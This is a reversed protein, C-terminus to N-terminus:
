FLPLLMFFSPFGVAAILFAAAMLICLILHRKTMPRCTLILNCFLVLATAYTAVTRIWEVSHGFAQGFLMVGLLVVVATIGAPLARKLVTRLFRGKVREHNPELALCFSPFGIFVGSLLTLNIPAFPYSLPLFVLLLSLLASFCTKVLFLSASRGINNIVRRGQALVAPLATFDSDLLVFQAAHRTADAGSAMAISCDADKMALIDNVGDGTMAVTHGAQRFAEVLIRKQAPSVRGFVVTEPAAARLAEDSLGSCDLAKEAGPLGAQQAVAVVTAPNDGSLVKLAVDQQRFYSLTEQAGPRLEDTLLLLALPQVGSFEEAEWDAKAFCLVRYGAKAFATVQGEVASFGSGLVYEPAGLLYCGDDFQV